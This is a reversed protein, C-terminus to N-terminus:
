GDTSVPVESAPRLVFVPHRAAEAIWEDIPADISARFYPGLLKRVVPGAQQMAQRILRAAQEAERNGIRLILNPRFRDVAPPGPSLV